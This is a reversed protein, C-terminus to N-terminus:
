PLGTVLTPVGRWSEVTTGLQGYNDGGWCDLVHEASLACTHIGGAGVAIVTGARDVRQPSSADMTTGVGLEGNDNRGWCWLAGDSIACTHDRRTPKCAIFRALDLGCEIDIGAAAATVHDLGPVQAPGHNDRTGNGLQGTSNAGWCFLPGDNAWACTHAGGTVVHDVAPLGGVRAGPMGGLQGADNAGWCHVSGDTVVVCTHTGGAAVDVVGDIPLMWPSATSVTTGDALQGTDNGGWCYAHHDALLACAHAGGTRISRIGTLSSVSCDVTPVIHDPGTEEGLQGFFNNGWCRATQGGIQACSFGAGAAISTVGRGTRELGAVAVPALESSRSGDGLQGVSDLGWCRVSGNSRVACSHSRGSDLVTADTLGHVSATPMAHPTNTGDGLQHESNV